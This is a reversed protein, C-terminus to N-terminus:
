IKVLYKNFSIKFAIKSSQNRLNVTTYPKVKGKKKMAIKGSRM